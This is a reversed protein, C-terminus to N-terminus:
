ASRYSRTRGVYKNGFVKGGPAPNGSPAKKKRNLRVPSTDAGKPPKKAKAKM